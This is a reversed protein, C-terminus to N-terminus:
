FLSGGGRGGGGDLLGGAAGGLRGGAENRPVNLQLLNRLQGGKVNLSFSYSQLRGFPAWSFSMEWAGLDRYISLQTTTIETEVIDFGSRGSIQWKPTLRFDFTGNVSARHNAERFRRSMNYTFDFRLSWPLAFDVRGPATMDPRPPTTGDVPSRQDPTPGGQRQRSATQQPSRGQQRDGGGGRLQGSFSANFQTLRLPTLLSNSIMYQDIVSFQERDPDDSVNTFQYPSFTSRLNINYDSVRTRATLRIDSLNLSDAALNYSSSANLRLLQITNEQTAGTTDVRVRKTEFQNNVSFSINQQETSGRVDRGTFIDYRQETGDLDAIYTRTRGWFPNNFDPQYSYSISPQVRHRLGRFSGVRVPFLGFFETSMSVGTSFDHLAAFGSETSREVRTEVPTGVGPATEDTDLTDVVLEKRQTRLVWDSRYSVNPNISLNYQNIRFTANVPIRHSAEIDFPDTRDPDSHGERYASPSVFAEYWEIDTEETPRYVFENSLSGTYSTTIREYWAEDRGVRDREFPKFSRQNFSVDPLTLRTDGSNLNQRQNAQVSIQRGSGQWRKQYRINSSVEQRVADNFNTTNERVFDSSTVLNVRGRISSTPNLDQNHSWRLTGEVSSQFDPDEPQGIREFLVNLNLSGDYHYRRNYRFRPSIEFSGGSWVGGRVTLDTFENMAFYWGFDRLYFGRRDEGYTPPLPGSRRGETYPVIGFPLWLPTPINFIYLQIPGTYVWRENVLKMRDSRLSYSPTVGPPRQDTTYSGRQVFSTGEEYRKIVGGEIFGEAESTRAQTIRGRQTRLNFALSEGSFEDGDGRDFVPFPTRATDSPPGSAHMEDSAFLYRITQAQLVNEQYTASAEGHLTGTDGDPDDFSLILSDRAALEIPADLAGERAEPREQSPAAEGAPALADEPLEADTAQTTDPLADADPLPDSATTDADLTDPDLTDAIVNPPAASATTGFSINQKTADTAFAATALLAGCGIWVWLLGAAIWNWQQPCRHTM